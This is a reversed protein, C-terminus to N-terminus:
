VSVGDEEEILSTSLFRYTTHTNTNGYCPECKRYLSVVAGKWSAHAGGPVKGSHSGVTM